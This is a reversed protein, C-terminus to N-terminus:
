AGFYGMDYTDTEMWIMVQDFDHVEAGYPAKGMKGAEWYARYQINVEYGLSKDPETGQRCLGPGYDKFSFNKILHGYKTDAM